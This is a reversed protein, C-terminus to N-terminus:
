SRPARTREEGRPQFLAEFTSRTVVRLDAGTRVEYNGAEAIGIDAGRASDARTTQQRAWVTPTVVIQEMWDANQKWNPERRLIRLVGYPVHGYRGMVKNHYQQFDGFM